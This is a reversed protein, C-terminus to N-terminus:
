RTIPIFLPRMLHQRRMSVPWEDIVYPYNQCNKVGRVGKYPNMLNKFCTRGIRVYSEM